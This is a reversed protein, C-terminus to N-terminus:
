INRQLHSQANPPVAAHRESQRTATGIAPALKRRHRGGDVDLRRDEATQGSAGSRVHKRSRPLLDRTRPPRCATIGEREENGLEDELFCGSSIGVRRLPSQRNGAREREDVDGLARQREGRFELRECSERRARPGIGQVDRQRGHM